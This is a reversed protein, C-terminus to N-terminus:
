YKIAGDFRGAGLRGCGLVDDLQHLGVADLNIANSELIVQNNSGARREFVLDRVHLCEGGKAEFDCDGLEVDAGFVGFCALVIFLLRFVVGGSDSGAVLDLFADTYGNPVEGIFIRPDGADERACTTSERL